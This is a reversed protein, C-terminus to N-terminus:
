QINSMYKLLTSYKKWAKMLHLQKIVIQEVSDNLKLSCYFDVNRILKLKLSM